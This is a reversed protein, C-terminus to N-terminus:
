LNAQCHRQEGVRLCESIEGKLGDELQTHIIERYARLNHDVTVM